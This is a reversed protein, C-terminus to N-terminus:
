LANPDGTNTITTEEPAGSSSEGELERALDIAADLESVTLTVFTGQPIRYAKKRFGSLFASLQDRSM